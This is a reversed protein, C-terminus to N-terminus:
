LAREGYPESAGHRRSCPAGHLHERAARSCPAAHSATPHTRSTSCASHTDATVSHLACALASVSLDALAVSGDAACVCAARQMHAGVANSCANSCANSHARTHEHFNHASAVRTLSSPVGVM